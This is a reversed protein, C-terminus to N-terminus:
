TQEVQGQRFSVAYGHAAQREVGRFSVDGFKQLGASPHRDAILDAFRPRSLHHLPRDAPNEARTARHAHLQGLWLQGAPHRRGPPPAAFVAAPPKGQQIGGRPIKAQRLRRIFNGATFLESPGLGGFKKQILLLFFGSLPHVTPDRDRPDWVPGKLLVGGTPDQTVVEPHLAQVAEAAPSQPRRHTRGSGQQTIEGFGQLARGSM